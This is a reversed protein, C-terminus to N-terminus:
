RRPSLLRRARQQTEDMATRSCCNRHRCSASNWAMLVRTLMRELRGSHSDLAGRMLVGLWTARRGSADGTAFMVEELRQAMTLATAVMAKLAAMIHLPRFSLLKSRCRHEGEPRSAESWALLTADAAEMSVIALRPSETRSRDHTMSRM